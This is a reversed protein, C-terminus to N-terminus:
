TRANYIETTHTKSHPDIKIKIVAAIHIEIWYNSDDNM